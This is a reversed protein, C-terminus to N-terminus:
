FQEKNPRVLEILDILSLIDNNIRKIHCVECIKVFERPSFEFYFPSFNAEQTHGCAQCSWQDEVRDDVLGQNSGGYSSWGYMIQTLPTAKESKIVIIAM